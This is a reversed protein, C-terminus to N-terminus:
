CCLAPNQKGLHKDLEKMLDALSTTNSTLEYKNEFGKKSMDVLVRVYKEDFSKKLSGICKYFYDKAEQKERQFYIGQTPAFIFTIM